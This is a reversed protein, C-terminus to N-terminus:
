YFNKELLFNWDFNLGSSFNNQSKLLLFYISLEVSLEYLFSNSSDISSTM